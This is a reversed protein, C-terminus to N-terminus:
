FDDLHAVVYLQAATYFLKHACHCVKQYLKQYIQKSKFFTQDIDVYEFLFAFPKGRSNWTLTCMIYTVTCTACLDIM